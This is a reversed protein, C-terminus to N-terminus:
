ILIVESLNNKLAYIRFKYYDYHKSGEYLFAFKPNDKQKEKLMDEFKPGNRVVYDAM